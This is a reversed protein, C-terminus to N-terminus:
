EEMKTYELIMRTNAGRRRRLARDGLDWKVKMCSFIYANALYESTSM